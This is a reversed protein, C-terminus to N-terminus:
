ALRVLSCRLMEQSSLNLRSLDLISGEEGVEATRAPSPHIAFGFARGDNARLPRRRVTPWAALWINSRDRKFGDTVEIIGKNQPMYTVPGNAISCITVDKMPKDVAALVKTGMKPVDNITSAEPAIEPTVVVSVIREGDLAADYKGTLTAIPLLRVQYNGNQDREVATVEAYIVSAGGDWMSANEGDSGVVISVLIIMLALFM